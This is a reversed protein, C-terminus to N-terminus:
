GPFSGGHLRRYFRGQWLNIALLLLLSVLMVVSAIAAAGAYDYEELRTALMLSVVETEYPMNGAIFIVAGFEGLSRAFSLGTGTIVAPRIHPWIVRRFAYFNSAGLTLAAEDTRTPLDELVPQVTRVVFPVSTFAMALAIGLWSYAIEIGYPALLAGIAGNRSYLTALTIGAVATPLAFPLDMLADLVRKGPFAYRALVWALLLGFLANFLSATAAALLTVRYSALLRPDTIAAWYQSWSLGALQGVLSTMPLLLILSVFLLTVGLSLTFGPLVRARM